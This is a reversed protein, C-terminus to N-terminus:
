SQLNRKILYGKYVVNGSVLEGEIQADVRWRESSFEVEDEIDIDADYEVFLMGDGVQAQGMNLHDLDQKSVWQIDAKITTTVSSVGTVRGMGDTTETPKILSVTTGFGDLYGTFVRKFGQARSGSNRATVM